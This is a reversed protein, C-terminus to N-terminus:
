DLEELTKKSRGLTLAKGGRDEQSEAKERVSDPLNKPVRIPSVFHKCNPHFILGSNKLEALTRYNGPADETLKVIMGEFYRCHDKAGHSSIVGYLAERQIAENITAEVYAESMKTNTVMEAYVEPRWRRGAADIIGTDVAKGLEKSLGVVIDRKIAKRGNIGAAMNERISQSTVRRIAGRTRRDINRTVALLDQQTDAIAARVLAQNPRNFKAIELAEEITDTAGLAVIASSVGQRAAIPINEEVWEASEKDVAKLIEAINALAAASNARSLDTVDLRDLEAMIRKVGDKYAKTLKSVHYNFDPEPVNLNM